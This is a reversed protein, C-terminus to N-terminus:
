PYKELKEISTTDQKMHLLGLTRRGYEIADGADSMVVMSM